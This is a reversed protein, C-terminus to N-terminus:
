GALTRYWAVTDSIGNKIPTPSGICLVRRTFDSNLSARPVGPDQDVLDFPKEGEGIAECIEDYLSLNGDTADLIATEIGSSVHFTKAGGSFAVVGAGIIAHVVDGVFVFDRTQTGDGHVELIEGGMMKQVFAHVASTKHRSYPGYVNSFRLAATSLGREESFGRCLQEAAAKMSGYVNAPRPPSIESPKLMPSGAVVAGSSAFVFCQANFDAAADLLSFTAELNIYFASLPVQSCEKVGSMAALHVVVDGGDPSFWESFDLDQSKTLDRELYTLHEICDQVVEIDDYGSAMYPTKDVVVVDELRELLAIVLNKGIFGAGGTVIWRM